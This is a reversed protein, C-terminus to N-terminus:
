KGSSVQQSKTVLASIYQQLTISGRQPLSPKTDAWKLTIETMAIMSAAAPKSFGAGELMQEWQDRPTEVAEVPKGLAAAFAAAVDGTSYTQPGEVYHLGTHNIPAIMLNAAIKGIDEPAVMPLKFNVPYMSHVKGEKIATALAADWNSMYYAARIISHPIALAKLDEEMKYLVGLDGIGKGPQAGYTSEGVVKEIDSDKLATIISALTELEGSVTDTDIPAPPNLLFLRKGTQFIQHLQETNHVDAVVVSAGKKKWREAKEPNHIIVTVSERRKLLANAVVSGIHGTAGSVIHM